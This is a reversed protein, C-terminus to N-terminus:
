MAIWNENKLSCENGSIYWQKPAIVLKDESRNLWAGWWSYTSNAIINNNCLSMLYMDIVSFKNEDADAVLCNSYKSFKEKAWIVDDTFIIFTQSGCESEIYEMASIYYDMSLTGHFKAAHKNNVYDGRRVHISTINKSDTILSYIQLNHCLVRLDDRIEFLPLILDRHENLLKSDQYFSFLCAVDINKISEPNYYSADNLSYKNCLKIATFQLFSNLLPIKKHKRLRNIKVKEDKSSFRDFIIKFQDLELHRITDKQPQNFYYSDDLVLITDPYHQKLIYAAAYQFMQNGLGGSLCCYM